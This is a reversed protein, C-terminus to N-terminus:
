SGVYRKTNVNKFDNWKKQDDDDDKGAPTPFFNYPNPSDDLDAGPPTNYGSSPTQNVYIIDAYCILSLLAFAVIAKQM